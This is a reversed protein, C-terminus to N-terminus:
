GSDPKLRHPIQKESNEAFRLAPEEHCFVFRKYAASFCRVVRVAKKDSNKLLSHTLRAALIRRRM